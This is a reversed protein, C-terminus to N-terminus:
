RVDTCYAYATLELPGGIARAMAQWGRKARRRSAHVYGTAGPASSPVAEFGGSLLKERPKCEALAAGSTDAPVTTEASRPVIPRRPDRDDDCIVEATIDGEVASPNSFTARWDRDGVMMSVLPYSPDDTVSSFGGAVAFEGRSATLCRARASATAGPAIAVFGSGRVTDRIPPKTCYGYAIAGGAATGLNAAELEWEGPRDWASTVPLVSATTGAEAYFGGSVVERGQHCEATRSVSTAPEVTFETTEDQLTDAALAVSSAVAAVVTAALVARVAPTDASM